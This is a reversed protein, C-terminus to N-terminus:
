GVHRDDSDIFPTLSMLPTLPNSAKIRAIEGALIELLDKFEAHRHLFKKAM